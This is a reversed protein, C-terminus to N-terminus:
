TPKNSTAAPRARSNAAMTRGRISKLEAAIPIGAATRRTTRASCPLRVMAKKANITARVRV